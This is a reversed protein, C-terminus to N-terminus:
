NICVEQILSDEGIFSSKLCGQLIHDNQGCGTAIKRLAAMIFNLILIQVELTDWIGM